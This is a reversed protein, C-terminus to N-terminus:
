KKVNDILRVQDIFAAIFRRGFHEELYEIQIKQNELQRRAEVLTASNTLAKFILPAKKRGEASLRINRSSMALGDTERLTPCSIIETSMFFTSVLDKILQLQQFDKEGFYAKNAQAINLLKMVVTLVGDFHGPRHAGCLIKSFESESIKYRYNDSYIENFEPALIFDVNNKSALEVDKDWTKPYKLLDDPNNFQTPNVYISLLTFENESVSKQLLSEHGSHLAGMTPIFGLTSKKLNLNRYEIFKQISNFIIPKKSMATNKVQFHKMKYKASMNM